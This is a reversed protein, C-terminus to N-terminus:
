PDFHRESDRCLLTVQKRAYRIEAAGKKQRSYQLASPYCWRPVAYKIGLLVIQQFAASTKTLTLIEINSTARQCHGDCMNFAPDLRAFDLHHYDIKVPFRM